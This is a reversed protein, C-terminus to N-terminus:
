FPDVLQKLMDITYHITSRKIRITADSFPTTQYYRDLNFNKEKGLLLKLYTNIINCVTAGIRDKEEKSINKDASLTEMIFLLKALEYKMGERNDEKYYIKLLNNSRAAEKGYDM